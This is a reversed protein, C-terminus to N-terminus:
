RGYSVGVQARIEDLTAMVALTQHAVHATAIYVVDLDADQALVGRM